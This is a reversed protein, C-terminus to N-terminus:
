AYYSRITLNVRPQVTGYKKAVMKPISHKYKHQFDVGKMIICDGDNLMKDFVLEKTDDKKVHFIRSGGLSVSIIPTSQVLGRERDGHLSVYDAGTMYWNVLVSNYNYKDPCKELIRSTYSADNMMDACFTQGGFATLLMRKSYFTFYRPVNVVKGYMSYTDRTTPRSNWMGTWEDESPMLEDRLKGRIVECGHDLTIVEYNGDQFIDKFEM